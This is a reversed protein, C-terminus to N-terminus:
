KKETSKYKHEQIKENILKEWDISDSTKRIENDIKIDNVIIDYYEPAFGKKVFEEKTMLFVVKDDKYELHNIMVDVLARKLSDQEVTLLSDPIELVSHFDTTVRNEKSQYSKCSVILTFIVFSIAIFYKM